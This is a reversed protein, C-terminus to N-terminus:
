LEENVLLAALTEDLQSLHLRDHRAAFQAMEILTTPGFLAHRAPRQWAENDLTSLFALTQARENAFAQMAAEGSEGSLDREGPAPGAPPPAIFPNDEHAIREITPRYVERERDRLHCVL